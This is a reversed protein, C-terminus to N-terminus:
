VYRGDGGTFVSFTSVFYIYHFNYKIFAAICLEHAMSQAVHALRTCGVCCRIASLTITIQLVAQEVPRM